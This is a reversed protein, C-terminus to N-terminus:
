YQYEKIIKVKIQQRKIQKREESIKALYINNAYKNVIWSNMQKDVMNNIEEDSLKRYKFFLIAQDFYYFIDSFTYLLFSYIKKFMNNNLIRTINYYINKFM